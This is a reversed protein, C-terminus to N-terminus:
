QIDSQMDNGTRERGKNYGLSCCFLFRIRRAVPCAGRLSWGALCLDHVHPPELRDVGRFVGEVDGNKGVCSGVVRVLARGVCHVGCLALHMFCFM